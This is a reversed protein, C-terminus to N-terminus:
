RGLEVTDGPRALKPRGKKVWRNHLHATKNKQDYSHELAEDLRWLYTDLKFDLYGQAITDLYSEWPPMIGTRNMVYVLVQEPERGPKLRVTLYVKKYLGGAVGEYHDLEEECEPTIRWLGGPCSSGKAYICDAVGRFVLKANPLILKGVKKAQPCRRGMAAVNLNSGYAFYL